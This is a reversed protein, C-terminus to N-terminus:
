RGAGSRGLFRGRHCSFEGEGDITAVDRHEQVLAIQRGIHPEVARDRDIAFGHAQREHAIGQAQNLEGIASRLGVEHLEIAVGVVRGVQLAHQGIGRVELNEVERAEVHSHEPLMEAHQRLRDVAGLGGRAQHPRHGVPVAELIERFLKEAEKRTKGKVMQSMVSASAKSIACGAGEFSVDAIREGEMKLHVTYHDGCLPNYGEVSRTADPMGRFNRPSRNHDLIVEQYLEHLQSM